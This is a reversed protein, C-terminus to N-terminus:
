DKKEEKLVSVIQLITRRFRELEAKDNETLEGNLGPHITPSPISGNKVMASVIQMARESTLFNM